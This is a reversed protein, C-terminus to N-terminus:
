VSALTLYIVLKQLFFTNWAYVRAPLMRKETHLKKLTMFVCHTTLPKTM